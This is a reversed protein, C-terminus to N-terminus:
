MIVIKLMNYKRKTKNKRANGIHLLDSDTFAYPKKFISEPESMM